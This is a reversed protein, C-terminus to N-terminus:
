ANMDKQLELVENMLESTDKGNAELERIKMRFRQIEERAFDKKLTSICDMAMQMFDISPDEEIMIKTIIKRDSEDEVASVLDSSSMKILPLITILLNKLKSNTIKDVELNDGVWEKSDLEGHLAVKIIGLAAKDNITNFFQEDQQSDEDDSIM